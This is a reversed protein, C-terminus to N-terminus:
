PVVEIMSGLKVTTITAPYETPDDQQGITAEDPSPTAGEWFLVTYIADETLGGPWNAAYVGMGTTDATVLETCAILAARWAALNLTSLAVLASGSWVTGDQAVILAKVNTKAAAAKLRIENAM